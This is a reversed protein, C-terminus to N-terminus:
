QQQNRRERWRRAQAKQCDGCVYLKFSVTGLERFRTDRRTLRSEAQFVLKMDGLGEWATCPHGLTPYYALLCIDDAAGTRNRSFLKVIFATQM